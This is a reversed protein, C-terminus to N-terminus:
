DDKIIINTIKKLLGQKEKKLEPNLLKYSYKYWKSQPYNYAIIAATKKAEDEIGLIYYIEVTRYLAEPTFKSQSFEINIKKFRNLAAFYKKNKLYFMGISMHKAAINEKVAIIKQNSDQYYDSQPFRNIVQEFSKLAENNMNGDLEANAIQEYYCLAKMYYAYDIKDYAPYQNILRNFTLIAGDYDMQVYKIFGIMSKSQISENSLPFQTNIKEFKILALDYNEAKLLLKAEKFLINPADM